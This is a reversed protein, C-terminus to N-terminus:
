LPSLQKKLAACADKIANPVRITTGSFVLDRDKKFVAIYYRSLRSSDQDFRVVYDAKEPDNTVAVTPCYKAFYNIVKTTQSNSGAVLGGFGTGKTASFGGVASWSQSDTIFIRPKEQTFGPVPVALLIALVWLSPKM